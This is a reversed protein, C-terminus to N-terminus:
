LNKTMKKYLEPHEKLYDPNNKRYYDLDKVTTAGDSSAVLRKYLVPDNELTEPAFKRYWDLTKEQQLYQNNILDSVKVAPNIVRLLASFSEVGVQKGINEFVAVEAPIVKRDRVAQQILGNIKGENEKEIQIIAEKCEKPTTKLSMKLMNGMVGTIIGRSQLSDIHRNDESNQESQEVLARVAELIDNDMADAPLNLLQIVAQRLDDEVAKKGKESELAFLVKIKGNKPKTKSMKVTNKIAPIDVISIEELVCKEIVNGNIECDSLGVSAARLFGNLVRYETERGLETSADFVADALLRGGSARLNEWRGIVGREREHMFLMVPNLVFRSTDVGSLKIYFGNAPETEDLVIFQKGMIM